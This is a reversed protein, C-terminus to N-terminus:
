RSREQYILTDKWNKAYAITSRGCRVVSGTADVSGNGEEIFEDLTVPKGFVKWINTSVEEFRATPKLETRM